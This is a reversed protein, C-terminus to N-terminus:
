VAFLGCSDLQPSNKNVEPEQQRQVEM